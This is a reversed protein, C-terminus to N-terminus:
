RTATMDRSAAFYGTRTRVQFEEKGYRAVVKVRRYGGRIQPNTPKYSISYQSRIDRAIGQTIADV